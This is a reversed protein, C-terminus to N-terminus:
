DNLKERTFKLAEYWGITKGYNIAITAIFKEHKNKCMKFMQKRLENTQILLSKIEAM